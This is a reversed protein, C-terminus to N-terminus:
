MKEPASVGLLELGNKVVTRVRAVLALRTATLAADPTIVRSAHYYKHFMNALEVLYHTLMHPALGKASDEVLDPFALCKKMLSVEDENCLTWDPIGRSTNGANQHQVFINSIRAHAYQVYYVPNDSTQRKTLDLDFELQADHSRTLFTFRAADVGVEDLVEKLTTFKGSRTSMAVIQGDKKLSVIQILIPQLSDPDRGLAKVAAKMRAVYGHHDAGWVDIIKTFGRKYKDAHYAIDAALYTTAGSTRKVVRDKEDDALEKSKLWLAGENEYIMGAALLSNLAGEVAGSAHFARESTWVDFRVRFRDLDAKIDDLIVEGTFSSFFPLADAEASHLFKDGHVDAVRKAIDNIYEGQYGNEPFPVDQGFRQKYRVLTSRGLNEMQLGTDNTYYEAAVDYGAKKLLRAIADGVAAGRGHGIHLPGTPNASVFEVLVKEGERAPLKGYESNDDPIGRFEDTWESKKVVLNIFGPPAVAVSEFLPDARLASALEEALKLPSKKFIKASVMAANTSFDGFKEEPPVEVSVAPPPSKEGGASLLMTEIAAGVAEKVKQRM